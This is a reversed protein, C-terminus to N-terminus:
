NKRGILEMALQAVRISCGGSGLRTRVGLLKERVAATYPADTLFRSIEAAIAEPRAEDQLLEPVVREGAVINCIGMHAVRVLRRGIHYTIPSVRYIITMPVGLLALEMTVTGSVTVAADCVQMVDHGKGEVVIVDMGSERLQPEIEERRLSPALPLIFQLDPFRERLLKASGLLAPFLNRLESRRSGPFLGVTPRSPDLGFLRQADGKAMTPSVIDLLPHGVFTVPVKEREYYPVEFPFLVAMHDVIKAMKKVRGPRWAWVQPSIYFLVRVGVKKAAAALRQNFDQYDILILLDPRETKLSRELSRFAKVIVPLHAVVEVLGVVAMDDADVLTRVGAARMKGGGMGFFSAEPSIRRIEEALGAGYMDGSAEGACIM